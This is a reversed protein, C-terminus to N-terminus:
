PPFHVHGGCTRTQTRFLSLSLQLITISMYTVMSDRMISVIWLKPLPQFGQLPVGWIYANCPLEVAQQYIFFVKPYFNVEKSLLLLFFLILEMCTCLYCAKLLIFLKIWASIHEELFSLSCVKLRSSLVVYWGARGRPSIQLKSLSEQVLTCNRQWKLHMSPFFCCLTPILWPLNMAQTSLRIQVQWDRSCFLWKLPCHFGFNLIVM